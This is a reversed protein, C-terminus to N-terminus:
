CLNWDALWTDYEMQFSGWKGYSNMFRCKFVAIYHTPYESPMNMGDGIDSWYEVKRNIDIIPVHECSAGGAATIQCNPYITLQEILPASPDENAKKYTIECSEVSLPYADFSVAETFFTIDGYDIFLGEEWATCLGEDDATCCHINVDFEPSNEAAVSVASILIGTEGMDFGPAGTKSGMDGCGAFVLVFGLFILCAIKYKKNM